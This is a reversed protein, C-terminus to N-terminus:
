AISPSASAPNEDESNKPWAWDDLRGIFDGHLGMGSLDVPMPSGRFTLAVHRTSIWWTLQALVDHVGGQREETLLSAFVERQEASLSALLGNFEPQSGTPFAINQRVRKALVSPSREVLDDIIQKYAELPTTPIDDM